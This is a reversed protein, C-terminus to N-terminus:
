PVTLRLATTAHVEWGTKTAINKADLSDRPLCGARAHVVSEMENVPLTTGPPAAIPAPAM